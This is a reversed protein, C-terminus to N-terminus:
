PSVRPLSVWIRASSAGAAYAVVRAPFGVFASVNRRSAEAKQEWAGFLSLAAINVCEPKFEM